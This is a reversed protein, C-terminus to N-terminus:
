IRIPNNDAGRNSFLLKVKKRTEPNKGYELVPLVEPYSMGVIYKQNDDKKLIDLTNQPVGELQELTFAVSDTINNLTQSFQIQLTSLELKINKLEEQAKTDLDLGNRRFDRILHNLLRQEEKTLPNEKGADSVTKLAQYLETNMGLEVIYKAFDERAQTSAERVQLNSSVFSFFSLVSSDNGFDALTEELAFVTNKFTRESTNIKIIEDIRTKTDAILNISLESINQETLDWKLNTIRKTQRHEM